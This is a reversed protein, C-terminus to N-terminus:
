QVLNQIKEDLKQVDKPYGKDNLYTKAKDFYSKIESSNLVAKKDETSFDELAILIRYCNRKYSEPNNPYLLLNKIASVYNKNELDEKINKTNDDLFGKEIGANFIIDVIAAQLSEPAKIYSDGFYVEAEATRALLDQALILNADEESLKIKDKNQESMVIRAQKNVEGDIYRGLIRGSHGYGVSYRVKDWYPEASFGENYQLTKIFDESFGTVEAVDEVTKINKEEVTKWEPIRITHGIQLSDLDTDPNTAKLCTLPIGMSNAISVARDGSQITYNREPIVDPKLSKEKNEQKEKDESTFLSGLWSFFKCIGNWIKDFFGEEKEFKIGIQKTLETNDDIKIEAERKKTIASVAEYVGKESYVANIQTQLSEPSLEKLDKTDLITSDGDNGKLLDIFAMQYSTLEIRSVKEATTKDVKGDIIRYKTIEGDKAEYVASNGTITCNKLELSSEQRKTIDFFTYSM